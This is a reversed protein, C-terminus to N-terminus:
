VVGQQMDLRPQGPMEAQAQNQGTQGDLMGQQMMQQAQGGMMQAQGGMMQATEDLISALEPSYKSKVNKVSMAGARFYGAPNVQSLMNGIPGNIFQELMVQNQNDDDNFSVSEIEIDAKTFAIDTDMTPIPAMVYNGNEDKLPKGDAPNTVEEFVMRTQEMGTQPNVQGTPIELPRNLEVWKNGQYNDSVRIIDHATFYQKILNVVDWGLLRYFQEIKSTSYRQAVMSANQQLRVKAGSDSAYAMGLFSDNISLVRQVRDLAKDIVTYQDLVERSLSEVRIGALDKVPIIANVRNFQHTFDDLSEVANDEVFAKQTNVMLQIKILAQNIAKQTEIVERFMGYFETKNSTNLKQVRYPNKVEKYTVEEKSLIEEGCWYVSWTKDGDQIVSHVVLYNDFRKYRGHFENSYTYAFEAEDIELHNFYADLKNKKAKGFLRTVEEDDIWKFRHIYRADSYDDLRSMPDIVIELSPVHNIDIEYKPRSFEDTEGTEKVDTYSCMIGTLICDLKIKDGESAFNNARFVYDTTDQLVQATITSEERAPSVKVNNVITSYYGLLMRGFMKVINFTEAPQGRLGLTNLQDQTYQRNHYLDLVQLAEKRSEEFAEYGIKFTDKLNEINPKM